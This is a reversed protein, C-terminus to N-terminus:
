SVHCGQKAVEERGPWKGTRDWCETAEEVEGRGNCSGEVGAQRPVEM